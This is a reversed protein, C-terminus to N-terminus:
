LGPVLERVRAVLADRVAQTISEELQEELADPDDLNELVLQLDLEGVARTLVDGTDLAADVVSDPLARVAAELLPNLDASDLAEDVLASAPPLAEDAALRGATALLAEHLADLQTDTPQQAVDLVLAERTVGLTCAADDMAALVLEETLGDIGTSASDVPRAVCPDAPGLPEFDGGGYAIQVALLGGVLALALAPLALVRGSM